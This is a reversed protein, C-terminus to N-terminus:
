ITASMNLTIIKKKHVCDMPVFGTMDQQTKIQYYSGYSGTITVQTEVALTGMAAGGGAESTM